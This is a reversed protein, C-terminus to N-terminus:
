TLKGVKAQRKKKEKRALTEMKTSYEQCITHISQLEKMSFTVEMRPIPIGPDCLYHQLYFRYITISSVFHSM